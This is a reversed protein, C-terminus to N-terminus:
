YDEDEEEMEANMEEECEDYSDIFNKVTFEDWRTFDKEMHQQNEGWDWDGYERSRVYQCLWNEDVFVGDFFSAPIRGIYGFVGLKTNLDEPTQKLLEQVEKNRAFAGYMNGRTAYNHIDSYGLNITEEHDMGYMDIAVDYDLVLQNVDPVKLSIIIPLSNKQEAATFAHYNAKEMNLTIFVKDEHTIDKYNTKSKGAMLGMKFMRPFADMSTGHYFIKKKMPTLYEDRDQDKIIEIDGMGDYSVVSAGRLRLAKLVKYLTASATSHRWNMTNVRLWGDEIEGTVSNTISEEFHQTFDWYDTSDIKLKLKGEIDNAVEEWTDEDFVWIWKNYAIVKDGDNPRKKGVIFVENLEELYDKFKIM